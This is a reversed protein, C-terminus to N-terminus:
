PLDGLIRMIDKSSIRKYGSINKVIVEQPPYEYESDIFEEIYEITRETAEGGGLYPIVDLNMRREYLKVLKNIFYEDSPSVINVVGLRHLGYPDESDSIYVIPKKLVSSEILTLEYDTLVSRSYYILNLYDMYDLPEIFLVDYNEMLRYYKKSKILNKRINKPLSIVIEYPIHNSFIALKDMYEIVDHNYFFGCLYSGEELDLEDLINSKKIANSINRLVADSVTSGVIGVQIDPFGERILNNYHEKNITLHYPISKDVAQRLYENFDESYSRIGSGIHISPLGSSKFAKSVIYVTKSYGGVLLMDLEHKEIIELVDNYVMKMDHWKIIRKPRPYDLSLYQIGKEFWGSEETVDYFFLSYKKPLSNIITSLHIIESRTGIFIAIRM